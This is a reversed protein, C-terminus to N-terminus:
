FGQALRNQVEAAPTLPRKVPSGVPHFLIDASVVQPHPQVLRQVIFKVHKLMLEVAIM